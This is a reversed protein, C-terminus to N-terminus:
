GSICLYSKMYNNVIHIRSLKQTTLTYFQMQSQRIDQPILLNLVDLRGIKSNGDVIGMLVMVKSHCQLHM